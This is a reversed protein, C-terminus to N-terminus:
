QYSDHNLAWQYGVTVNVMLSDDVAFLHERLVDRGDTRGDTRVFVGEGEGEDEASALRALVHARTHCV